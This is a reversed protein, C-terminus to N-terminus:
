NFINSCQPLNYVYLKSHFSVIIMILNSLLHNNGDSSVVSLFQLFVPNRYAKRLCGSFKHLWFMGNGMCTLCCLNGYKKAWCSILVPLFM